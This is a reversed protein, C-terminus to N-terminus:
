VVPNPPPKNNLLLYSFYEGLAEGELIDLFRWPLESRYWPGTAPQEFAPSEM